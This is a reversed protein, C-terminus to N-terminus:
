IYNYQLQKGGVDHKKKEWYWTAGFNVAFESVKYGFNIKANLTVSYTLYLHFEAVIKIILNIIQFIFTCKGV